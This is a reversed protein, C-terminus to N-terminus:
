IILEPLEHLVAAATSPSTESTQNKSEASNIINDKIWKYTGSDECGRKKRIERSLGALYIRVSNVDPFVDWKLFNCHESIPYTDIVKIYDTNGTIGYQSLMMFCMVTSNCLWNLSKTVIRNRRGELDEAKFILPKSAKAVQDIYSGEMYKIAREVFVANEVFPIMDPYKKIFRYAIALIVPSSYIIEGGEAARLQDKLRATHKERRERLEEKVYQIKPMELLEEKIDDYKDYDPKTFLEGGKRILDNILEVDPNKHFNIIRPMLPLIDELQRLQENGLHRGGICIAMDAPLEYRMM